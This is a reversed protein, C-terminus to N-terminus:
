IWIDSSKWNWSQLTGVAHQRDSDTEDKYIPPEEINSTIYSPDFLNHSAIHTLDEILVIRGDRGALRALALLAVHVPLTRYNSPLM